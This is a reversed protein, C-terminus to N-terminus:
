GPIAKTPESTLIGLRECLARSPHPVGPVIPVNWEERGYKRKDWGDKEFALDEHFLPQSQRRDKQKQCDSDYKEAIRACL